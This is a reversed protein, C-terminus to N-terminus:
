GLFGTANLQAMVAAASLGPDAARPAPADGVLTSIWAAHRGEVSVIEAAQAMAAPTLNAGQGNYAAVGINELEHAVAGFRSPDQTASGFHFAPAPRAAPGLANRLAAVHAREHGGVIRAFDRLEGRLAGRQSAETYFAAQLQELLLAFQFIRRDAASSPAAESVGLGGGVVLGGVLLTGAGVAM